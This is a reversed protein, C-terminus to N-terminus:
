LQKEVEILHDGRRRDLREEDRSFDVAANGWCSM